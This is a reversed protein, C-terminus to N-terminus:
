KSLYCLLSISKQTELQHNPISSMQIPEQDEKVIQKGKHKSKTVCEEFRTLEAM